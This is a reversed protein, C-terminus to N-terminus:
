ETLAGLQARARWLMLGGMGCESSGKEGGGTRGKKLSRVALPETAKAGVIALCGVDVRLGM